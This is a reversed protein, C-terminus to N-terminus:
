HFQLKDVAMKEAITIGERIARFCRITTDLLHGLPGRTRSPTPSLDNLVICMWNASLLNPIFSDLFCM